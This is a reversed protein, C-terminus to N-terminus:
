PSAFKVKSEYELRHRIGCICTSLFPFLFRSAHPPQCYTSLSAQIQNVGSTFLDNCVELAPAEVLHVFTMIGAM